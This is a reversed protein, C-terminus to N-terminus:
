RPAGDPTSPLTIRVTTGEGPASRLSVQGGHAKVIMRVIHLGLGTGPIQRRRANEGRFFKVFVEDVDEQAVGEGNDTVEIEVHDTHERLSVVVGGGSPTYTIANSILNDLVQRMRLGDVVAPLTEPVDVELSVGERDAVSIAAEAALRIVTSLDVRFTGILPVGVDASASYLLDSVLQSLRLANRRAGVVRQQAAADLGETGELLELYALASTLPTRLEHSVSAVIEDRVSMARMMETIDHYALAAGSFNGFRDRVSRASVSVARRAAPDAGVWIVLDSFEEGQAARFTPLEESSAKRSQDAVFIEGTEGAQGSFGSPFALDAFKQSRANHSQHAGTADLLLLGVDVSDFVAEARAREVDVQGQVSELREAYAQRESLDVLQSIFHIPAGQKDRLLTVSLDGVLISGDARLYRKVSRYSQLRGSLAETFFKLDPGLDDPHILDKFSLSEITDSTYGLMECLATNATTFKGEPSVLAMGVPSHEMTLRWLENNETVTQRYAVQRVGSEVRKVGSDVVSFDPTFQRRM